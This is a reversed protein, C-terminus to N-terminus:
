FTLLTQPAVRATSVTLKSAAAAESTTKSPGDPQPLDV